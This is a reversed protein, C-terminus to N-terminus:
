FPLTLTWTFEAHHERVLTLVRDAVQWALMLGLMVAVYEAVVSGGSRRRKTLQLGRSGIRHNM